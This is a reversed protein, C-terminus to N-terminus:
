IFIDNFDKVTDSACVISNYLPITKSESLNSHKGLIRNNSKSSEYTSVEPVPTISTCLNSFYYKM